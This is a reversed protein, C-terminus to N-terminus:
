PELAGVARLADRCCPHDCDEFAAKHQNEESANAHLSQAASHLMGVLVQKEEQHRQHFIRTNRDYLEQTKILEEDEQAAQEELQTVEAELVGVRSQAEALRALLWPVHASVLTQGAVNDRVVVHPLLGQITAIRQEVSENM